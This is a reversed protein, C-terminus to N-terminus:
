SAWSPSAHSSAVSHFRYTALRGRSDALVAQALRCWSFLLCQEPPPAPPLPRLCQAGLVTRDQAAEVVVTAPLWRCHRRWGSSSCLVILLLHLCHQLQLKLKLSSAVLCCSLSGLSASLMSCQTWWCCHFLLVGRQWHQASWRSLATESSGRAPLFAATGSQPRGEEDGVVSHRCVQRRFWFRSLSYERARGWHPGRDVVNERKAFVFFPFLSLLLNTTSLFPRQHLTRTRVRAHGHGRKGGPPLLHHSGSALEGVTRSERYVFTRERFVHRGTTRESESGRDFLRIPPRLSWWQPCVSPRFLPSYYARVCRAELASEGEKKNAWEEKTEKAAKWACSPWKGFGFGIASSKGSRAFSHLPLSRVLPCFLYLCVSLSRGDCCHFQQRSPLINGVMYEWWHRQWHDGHHHHHHRRHFSFRSYGVVNFIRPVVLCVWDNLRNPPWISWHGTPMHVLCLTTSRGPQLLHRIASNPFSVLSSNHVTWQAIRRWDCRSVNDGWQWWKRAVMKAPSPPTQGHAVATAAAARWHGWHAATPRSASLLVSNFAILHRNAGAAATNAAYPISAMSRQNIAENVASSRRASVCEYVCVCKWVICLTGPTTTSTTTTTTIPWHWHHVVTLIDMSAVTAAPQSAIIIAVRDVVVWQWSKLALATIWQTSQTSSWLSLPRVPLWQSLFICTWTDWLSVRHQFGSFFTTSFSLAAWDTVTTPLLALVHKEDTWVDDTRDSITDSDTQLCPSFHWRTCEPKDRMQQLTCLLLSQCLQCGQHCRSCPKLDCLEQDREGPLPSAAASTTTIFSRGSSSTASLRRRVCAHNCSPSDIAM